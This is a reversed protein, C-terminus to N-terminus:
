PLATAHETLWRLDRTKGLTPNPWPSYWRYPALYTSPELWRHREVRGDVFSLTCGYSHLTTPIGRWYDYSSLNRPHNQFVSDTLSDELEHILSRQESPSIGSVASFKNFTRGSGLPGLQNPGHTGLYDNAAYSRVRDLKQGALVIYSQDSPCRYIAADSFYNGISGPSTSKLIGRNTSLQFVSTEGNRKEYTM